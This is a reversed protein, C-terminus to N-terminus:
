MVLHLAAKTNINRLEGSREEPIHLRQCSCWELVKMLRLEDQLVATEFLHKVNKGYIGILPHVHDHDEVVTIDANGKHHLTILEELLATTLLPVDCSLILSNESHSHELATYIGGVPGKDAYIDTITDPYAYKEKNDPNAVLFVTDCLPIIAEFVHGVFTKGNFFVLRKESGMRSSKGGCLIYTSIDTVLNTM